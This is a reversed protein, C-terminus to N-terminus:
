FPFGTSSTDFNLVYNIKRYLIFHDVTSFAKLYRIIFNSIIKNCHISSLDLTLTLPTRISISFYFNMIAAHFTFRLLPLPQIDM